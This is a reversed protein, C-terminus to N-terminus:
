APQQALLEGAIKVTDDYDFPKDILRDVGLNRAERRVEPSGYATMVVTRCAPNLQRLQRLVSLGDTDPLRLDLFVMGIEPQRAVESLASAGTASEIVRFGAAELRTRLSWRILSEDDVVLICKSIM